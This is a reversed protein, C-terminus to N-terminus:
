GASGAAQSANLEAFEREDIPDDFELGLTEGDVEARVRIWTTKGERYWAVIAVGLAIAAVSVFVLAVIGEKYTLSILVAVFPFACMTQMARRQTLRLKVYRSYCDSCAPIELIPSRDAMRLLYPAAWGLLLYAVIGKADYRPRAMVSFFVGSSPRGCCFCRAPFHPQAFLQLPVTLLQAV